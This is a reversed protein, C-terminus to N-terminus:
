VDDHHQIGIEALVLARRRLGVKPHGRDAPVFVSGVRL